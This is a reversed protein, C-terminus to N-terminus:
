FCNIDFSRIYIHLRQNKLGYVMNSVITIIKLLIKVKDKKDQSFTSKSLNLEISPNIECAKFYKKVFSILKDDDLSNKIYSKFEKNKVSMSRQFVKTEGLELRRIVSKFVADQKGSPGIMISKIPWGSAFHSKEDIYISKIKIYQTLVGSNANPRFDIKSCCSADEGRLPFFVLRTEDETRFSEQKMLTALVKVVIEDENYDNNGKDVSNLKLGKDVSKKIQDKIKENNNQAWTNNDYIVSIPKICKKESLIVQDNGICYSIYKVVKESFDLGISVGSEKAYIIWQNLMDEEKSFSITYPEIYKGDGDKSINIAKSICTKGYLFESSDNLFNVNTAYMIANSLISDLVLTSTYHFVNEERKILDFNRMCNEFCFCDLHVKYEM